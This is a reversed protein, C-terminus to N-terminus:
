PPVEYRQENAKGYSFALPSKNMSHVWDQKQNYSDSEYIRAQEKLKEKMLRRIGVRILWDPLYNKEALTIARSIM